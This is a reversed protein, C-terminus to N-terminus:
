QDWPFIIMIGLGFNASTTISLSPSAKESALFRNHEVSSCNSLQNSGDVDSQHFRISIKSEDINHIWM